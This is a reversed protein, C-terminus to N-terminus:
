CPVVHAHMGPRSVLAVTWREIAALKCYLYQIQYQIDHRAVKWIGPSIVYDHHCDFCLRTVTGCGHRNSFVWRAAEEEEEEEGEEEEEEEDPEFQSSPEQAGADAESEGGEKEGEEEGHEGEEEEEGEQQTAKQSARTGRGRV